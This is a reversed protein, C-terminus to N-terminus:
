RHKGTGHKYRETCKQYQLTILLFCSCTTEVKLMVHIHLQLDRWEMSKLHCWKKHYHQVFNSIYKLIPESSFKKTAKKELLFYVRFM